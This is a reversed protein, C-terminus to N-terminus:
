EDRAYHKNGGIRELPVNTKAEVEIEPIHSIKHWESQDPKCRESLLPCARIYLERLKTLCRMAKKSPFNRLRTCRTLTVYELSSLKGFWEPLAEIGFNFLRFSSLATLHQLENPLSKFKPWGYLTLAELSQPQSISDFIECFSAFDVEKSFPGISLERLHSVTSLSHRPLSRLKTCETIDLSSLRPMRECDVSFSVLNNCNSVHLIELSNCTELMTSSFNTLNQCGVVRLARLSNPYDALGGQIFYRISKLKDCDYIGVNELSQISHSPFELYTLSSCGYIILSSLRQNDYLLRKPLCTIDSVYQLTLSSLNNGCIKDLLVAGRKVGAIKLEKLCPFGHAPANSMNYCYVIKLSELRPFAIVLRSANDPSVEIWEISKVNKLGNLELFKLQPLHGLTPVEACRECDILKLKILKHLRFQEDVTTNMIWSPFNDGCFGSIKLNKINPFSELGELVQEDNLNNGERSCNWVLELKHINPKEFLCARKAEVKHSVYELNRIALEGKLNKLSGLEEIRRGNEYGVSFFKLTRLCTLKGIGLPMQLDENPEVLRHRLSVLNQLQGPIEELNHCLIAGCPRADFRTVETGIKFAGIAQPGGEM